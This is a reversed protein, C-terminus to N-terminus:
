FSSARFTASRQRFQFCAVAFNLIPGQPRFLAWRNLRQNTKPIPQCQQQRKLDTPVM